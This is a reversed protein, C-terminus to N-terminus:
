QGGVGPHGVGSGTKESWYTPDRGYDPTTFARDWAAGPALLERWPAVETYLVRLSNLAAHHLAPGDTSVADDPVAVEFNRALAARATAEVCVNTQLGAVILRRVGLNHLLPELETYDFLSARTKTLVVDDAEPAVADMIQRNWERQAATLEPMRHARHALLRASRPHTGLGGAASGVSRSYIIRLRQRRAAALLEACADITEPLRWIPPWGLAERVGDDALYSNQMDIMLVTTATM